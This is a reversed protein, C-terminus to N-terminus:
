PQQNSRMQRIINRRKMQLLTELANAVRARVKKLKPTECRTRHRMWDLDM